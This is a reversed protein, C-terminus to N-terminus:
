GHNQQTLLLSLHTEAGSMQFCLRRCHLAICHCCCVLAWRQTLSSHSSHTSSPLESAKVAKPPAPIPDMTTEGTLGMRVFTFMIDSGSASLLPSVQSGESSYKEQYRECATQGMEVSECFPISFAVPGGSETWCECKFLKIMLEDSAERVYRQAHMLNSGILM